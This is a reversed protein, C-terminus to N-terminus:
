AGKIVFLLEEAERNDGPMKVPRVKSGEAAYGELITVTEKKTWEIFDALTFLHINPTNYWKYPLSSTVPMKESKLFKKVTEKYFFNPFSVLCIEGVRLIEKLVLLPQYLQQVTKELIVYDYSKNKFENLGQDLDKQYVAVGNKIAAAVYEPDAEVAQGCVNKEVILRALLEGNGCGLDLVSTEKGILDFILNHDWRITNNITIM